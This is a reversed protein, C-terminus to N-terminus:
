FDSIQVLFVFNPSTHLELTTTILIKFIINQTSEYLTEGSFHYQLILTILNSM